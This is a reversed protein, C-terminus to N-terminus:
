FAPLRQGANLFKRHGLRNECSCGAGFTVHQATPQDAVLDTVAAVMPAVRLSHIGRGSRIQIM